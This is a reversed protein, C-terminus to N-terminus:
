IILENVTLVPYFDVKYEELLEKSGNCPKYLIAITAPVIAGRVRLTEACKVTSVATSLCGEVLLYSANEDFMGKILDDGRKPKPYVTCVSRGTEHGLVQAISEGCGGLGAFDFDKGYKDKADEAKEILLQVALNRGEPHSFLKDTDYYQGPFNGESVGGGDLPNPFCNLEKFLEILRAVRPDKVFM